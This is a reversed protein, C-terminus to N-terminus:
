AAGRGAAGSVVAAVQYSSTSGPQLYSSHGTIATLPEGTASTGAGSPLHRLGDLFSPDGGFTGVDAFADWRAEVLYAAGESLGLDRVDDTGIGPAGLFVAADADAGQQLALGAVVAGYSHGVVTIDPADARSAGLGDLFGSLRPAAIQAALDSVPSRETYALGWGWQPAQYNLWTVAAVRGGSEAADGLHQRAEDRLASVQTDYGGLSGQLTSGAGPVFVAVRDAEDVDGVAVAAMAERGTLDLALLHRDDRALVEDLADLAALKKATQELGADADIFLGGFVTGGLETQLQAAVGELRRREIGLLARNAADRAGAPIGDLAGILAPHGSLLATRDREDLGAWWRAVVDPPTGPAPPRPLDPLETRTGGFRLSTVQEAPGPEDLERSLMWAAERDLEAARALMAAVRAQIGARVATAPSAGPAPHVTGDDAVVVGNAAADSRIAELEARLARLRPAVLLACDRVRRLSDSQAALAAACMAFHRGAADHADGRWRGECRTRMTVAERVHEVGAACRGLGAEFDSLADPDWRILDHMRM